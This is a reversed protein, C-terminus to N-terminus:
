RNEGALNKKGIGAVDVEMYILLVIVKCGMM